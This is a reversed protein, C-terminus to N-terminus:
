SVCYLVLVDFYAFHNSVCQHRGGAPQGLLQVFFHKKEHFLVLLCIVKADAVLQGVM